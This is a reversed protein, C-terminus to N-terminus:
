YSTFVKSGVRRVQMSKSANKENAFCNISYTADEKRGEMRQM